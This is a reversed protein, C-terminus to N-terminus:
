FIVMVTFLVSLDVRHWDSYSEGRGKRAQLVPNESVCERRLLESQQFCRQCVPLDGGYAAARQFAAFRLDQTETEQVMQLMSKKIGARSRRDQGCSEGHIRIDLYRRVTNRNQCIHLACLM